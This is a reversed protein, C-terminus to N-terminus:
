KTTKGQMSLALEWVTSMEILQEILKSYFINVVLERLKPPAFEPIM